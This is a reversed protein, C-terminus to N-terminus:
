EEDFAFDDEPYYTFDLDSGSVQSGLIVDQADGVRILNPREYM